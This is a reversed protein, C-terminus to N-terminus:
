QDVVTFSVGSLDFDDPLVSEGQSTVRVFKEKVNGQLDKILIKKWKSRPTGRPRNQLAPDDPVVVDKSPYLLTRQDDRTDRRNNKTLNLPLTPDDVGLFPEEVTDTDSIDSEPAVVNFDVIPASVYRRIPVTQGPESSVFLYAPIEISINSKIIREKTSMDDFNNESSFGSVVKAVYWYGKETEVRWCTGGQPLYSSIVQQVITNMHLTYQTWFMVEYKLLVFQPTPVVIIEYINNSKDGVFLGGDIVTPDNSLDGISRSTGVQFDQAADTSVALNSQNRLMLRNILNQYNRDTKSLRRKVYIEGVQQNIGMSSLIQLDQVVETRGIAILPLIVSGNQDRLKGKTKAIAWKEGSAFIVPIKRQEGNLDVQLNLQDNFLKLLARDVDEITSSPINFEEALTDSDYGSPLPEVGFRTKAYTNFRTAM